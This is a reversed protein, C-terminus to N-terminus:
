VTFTEKSSQVQGPSYIGKQPDTERGSGEREWGSDGVGLIPGYSPPHPPPHATGKSNVLANGTGQSFSLFLTISKSQM